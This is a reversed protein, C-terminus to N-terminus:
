GRRIESGKFQVTIRYVKKERCHIKGTERDFRDPIELRHIDISAHFGRESFVDILIKLATPDDLLPDEANVRAFGSIAHPRVIPMIKTEIFCVVEHLLHPHQAEYADLRIVLDRRAHHIIESAVPIKRLADFTRPDLELSSQYKLERLINERVEELSVQANIFHYHFIQKLSVLADYTKEKFVRYRNRALEEDFDTAREEWRDGMGTRGVEENHAAM